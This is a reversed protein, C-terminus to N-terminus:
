ICTVVGTGAAISCTKSNFTFTPQSLNLIGMVIDPIDTIAVGPIVTFFSRISNPLVCGVGTRFLAEKTTLSTTFGTNQVTFYNPQPPNLLGQVNEFCITLPTNTNAGFNSNYISLPGINQTRIADGGPHSCTGAKINAPSDGLCNATWRVNSVTVADQFFGPGGTGLFMSSQESGVDEISITSAAAPASVFFDMIGNGGMFGGKWHFGGFLDEVGYSGGGGQCSVSEFVLDYVQTNNIKACAETYGEVTVNRLHMQDNNGDTGGGWFFGVAGGGNMSVDMDRVVNLSSPWRTGSGSNQFHVMNTVPNPVSGVLRGFSFNSQYNDNIQILDTLTASPVIESCSGSSSIQLGFATPIIWTTGLHYLGCPIHVTGTVTTGVDQLASFVAAQFAATSSQIGVIDAGFWIPSIQPANLKHGITGGASLDFIKLSEPAALPGSFSVTQGSGPQVSGGVTWFTAANCTQTPVATWASSILLTQNTSVAASCAQALSSYGYSLLLGQLTVAVPSPGGSSVGSGVLSVVAAVMVVLMALAIMRM